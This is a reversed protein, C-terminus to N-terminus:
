GDRPKAAPAGNRCYRFDCVPDGRGMTRTRLFRISPPFMEAMVDDTKCFSATLEPAGRATLTNLYYCRTANFAVEDDDNAVYTFDWGEAPYQKMMVPFVRRFLKFPDPVMKLPALLLRDDSVAWARFAEDIEALAADRDGAHERLLTHYLALGPLIKATLHWRLLGNDPMSTEAILAAHEKRVAAALQEAKAAGHRAALVPRWARLGGVERRRRGALWAIGLAAAIGLIFFAITRKGIM